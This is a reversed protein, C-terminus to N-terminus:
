KDVLVVAVVIVAVVDVVAISSSTACGMAGAFPVADGVALVEVVVDAGADVDMDVDSVATSSFLNSIDSDCFDTSL